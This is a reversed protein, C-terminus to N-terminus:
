NTLMVFTFDDPIGHASRVSVVLSYPSKREGNSTTGSEPPTVPSLDNWHEEEVRIRVWESKDYFYEDGESYWVWVREQVNSCTCTTLLQPQSM